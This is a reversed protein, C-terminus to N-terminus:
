IVSSERYFIYQNKGNNKAQYLASDANRILTRQDGEPSPVAIGVSASVTVMDQRLVIPQQLTNVIRMAVNEVEFLSHVSSLLLIFEDGGLRAVIDTDRVVSQIRKAIEVLVQDGAEHGYRDNIQKFGDIDLMCVSTFATTNAISESLAETVFRRNYVGTLADHFAMDNLETQQKVLVQYMRVIEQLLFLLVMTGAFLSIVRATYWGIMYREGAYLTMSVDMLSTFATVQIALHIVSNSKFGRYFIFIVNALNLGLVVPGVRSTILLHYNGNEIIKPLFNTGFISVITLSVVLLLVSAVAIWTIQVPNRVQRMPVRRCNLVQYVILGIPFGAHWFVWLWTATQSNAHLWGTPSFLGPLALMHPLVISGSYLSTAGLIALPLRGSVIFQGFLLFSTIWESFMIISLVSPMFPSIVGLRHTSIPLIVLCAVLLTCIISIGFFKEKKSAVVDLLTSAFGDTGINGKTRKGVLNNGAGLNFNNFGMRRGPPLIDMNGLASIIGSSVGDIGIHDDLNAFDLTVKSLKFTGFEV